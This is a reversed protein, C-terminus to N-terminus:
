RAALRKRSLRAGARYQQSQEFAAKAREPLGALALEKSEHLCENAAIESFRAMTKWDKM